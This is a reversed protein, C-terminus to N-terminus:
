KKKTYSISEKKTNENGYKVQDGVDAVQDCKDYDQQEHPDGFVGAPYHKKCANREICRIQHLLIKQAWFQNAVFHLHIRHHYEGCYYYATHHPPERPHHQKNWHNANQLRKDIAM